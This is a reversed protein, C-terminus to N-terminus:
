HRKRRGGKDVFVDLLSKEQCYRYLREYVEEAGGACHEMMSLLKKQHLERNFYDHTIENRLLLENLFQKEEATQEEFLTDYSTICYRLSDSHGNYTHENTRIFIVLDMFAQTFDNLRMAVIDMCDVQEDANDTQFYHESKQIIRKTSEKMFDLIDAIRLVNVPEREEQPNLDFQALISEDLKM